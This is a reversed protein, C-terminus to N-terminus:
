APNQNNVTSRGDYHVTLLPLPCRTGLTTKIHKDGHRFDFWLRQAARSLRVVRFFFDGPVEMRALGLALTTPQQM